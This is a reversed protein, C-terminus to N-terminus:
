APARLPGVEGGDGSGAGVPAVSPVTAPASLGLHFWVTLGVVVTAGLIHLLVIWAPIGLAYQLFGIAGQAVVAVLLRRGRVLVGPEAGRRHLQVLLVVLISLFLWMNLSHIRVVDPIFFGFREAAEDGGHPGSGTVVPGTVMLLCGAALLIRSTLLENRTVVPRRPGAPTGARWLLIVANTVLVMSLVFHGAVAAPHVHTLVTIGGLVIQGIVGAVLGLSWWVLDRRYPRRRLSGLVAAIVGVGVVGTFLRNVQEVAMNADSAEIFREDTCNPWDSCGMGSGTLRVAAGTVVIAALLVLAVVVVRRYTAAAITFREPAEAGAEDAM